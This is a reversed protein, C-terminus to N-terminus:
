IVLLLSPSLCQNGYSLFRRGFSQPAKDPLSADMVCPLGHGTSLLNAVGDHQLSGPATPALANSFAGIVLFNYCSELLDQAESDRIVANGQDKGNCLRGEAEQNVRPLISVTGHM